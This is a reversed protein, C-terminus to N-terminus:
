LKHTRHWDSWALEYASGAKGVWKASLDTWSSSIDELEQALGDAERGLREATKLTLDVQMHLEDSM